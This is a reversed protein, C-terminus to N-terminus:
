EDYLASLKKTIDNGLTLQTKLALQEVSGMRADMNGLKNEVIGLRNDMSELKSLIQM